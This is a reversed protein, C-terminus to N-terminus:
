DRSTVVRLYIFLNTNIENMFVATEGRKKEDKESDQAKLTRNSHSDTILFLSLRTYVYVINM